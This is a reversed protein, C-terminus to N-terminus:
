PFCHVSLYAHLDTVRLTIDVIHSSMSTIADVSSLARLIERSFPRTTLEVQGAQRRMM